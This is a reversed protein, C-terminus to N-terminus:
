PKSASKKSDLAGVIAVPPVANRIREYQDSPITNGCEPCIGSRNGTLQYECRDCIEVICERKSARRLLLLSCVLVLFPVWFPVEISVHNPSLQWISPWVFGFDPQVRWILGANGWWMGPGVGVLIRGAGIMLWFSSCDHILALRSSVVWALTVSATALWLIGVVISRRRSLGSMSVRSMRSISRFLDLYFSSNGVEAPM